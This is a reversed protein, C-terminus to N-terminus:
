DHVGIQKMTEEIIHMIMRSNDHSVTPHEILGKSIAERVAEAQFRLGVSNSFNTTPYKQNLEPLPSSFTEGNPLILRSPSWSFEPIQMTGKTGVIFTPAFFAGFCSFSITAMRNGSYLLIITGASDVGNEFQHGSATIKMPKEHDFALCALQIPYIGVDLALGGGLEKERCRAVDKIPLIFNSNFFNLDGITKNAIEERMRDVVPFFRTWLAEMFFVNKAKAAKFVEEQEKSNLAMPKECLVHKGQAIADLSLKCHSTNLSGIYVINIDTRKFLDDYSQCAHPINFRTAFTQAAEHTRAAVAVISHKERVEPPFSLLATVFDQCILGTSVIGWNLTTSM